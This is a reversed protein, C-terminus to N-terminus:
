EVFDVERTRLDFQGNEQRVFLDDRRWLASNVVAPFNDSNHGKGADRLHAVLEKLTLPGNTMILKVCYGPITEAQVKRKAHGNASTSSTGQKVMEAKLAEAKTIFSALEAVEQELHVVQMRTAELQQEMSALKRRALDILSDPM